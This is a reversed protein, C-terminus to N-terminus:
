LMQRAQQQMKAYEAMLKQLHRAQANRVGHKYANQSAAQKGAETKPGTSQAVAAM